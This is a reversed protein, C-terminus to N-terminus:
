LSGIIEQYQQIGDTKLESTYDDESKYGYATPTTCKSLLRLGKKMLSGEVNTVFAACYDDSSMAQCSDGEINDIKSLTASLYTEPPKM